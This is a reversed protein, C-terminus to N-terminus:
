DTLSIPLHELENFYRRLYTALSLRAADQRWADLALRLVGVAIMAAIRVQDHSDSDPWIKCMADFLSQEIEVFLATKRAKLAETSRLLRDVILSERTEYHSSLSLFCNRAAAL